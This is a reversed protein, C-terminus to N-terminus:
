WDGACSHEERGSAIAALYLDYHEALLALQKIEEQLNHENAAERHEGYMDIANNLLSFSPSRWGCKCMVSWWPEERDYRAYPFHASSFTIVEEPLPEAAPQVAVGQWLARANETM